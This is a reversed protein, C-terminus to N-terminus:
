RLMAYCLVACCLVARCPVARCLGACCLMARCPMPHQMHNLTKAAHGPQGHVTTRSDGGQLGHQRMCALCKPKAYPRVQAERAGIIRLVDRMAREPDAWCWVCAFPMPAALLPSMHASAPLGSINRGGDLPPYQLSPLPVDEISRQCCCSRSASSKQSPLM